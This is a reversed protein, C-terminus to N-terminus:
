DNPGLGRERLDAKIQAVARSLRMKCAAESIGFVTAIEAFRRGELVKMVVIHRQDAPLKAIADKVAVIIESSLALDPAEDRPELLALGRRAVVRRRVEDVFRREAVAYLWALMSNPRAEETRLAAAAEAFVRQTLEEADHHDGTRRLLFRYVQGRYERFAQEVVDGREFGVAALKTGTTGVPLAASSRRRTTAHPRGGNAPAHKVATLVRETNPWQRAWLWRPVDASKKRFRTAATVALCDVREPHDPVCLCKPRRTNAGRYLM